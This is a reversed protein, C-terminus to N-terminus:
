NSQRVYIKSYVLPMDLMTAIVYSLKGAAPVLLHEVRPGMNTPPPPYAVAALAVAWKIVDGEHQEQLWLDL